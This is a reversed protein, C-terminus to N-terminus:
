QTTADERVVVQTEAAIEVPELLVTRITYTGASAPEAPLTYNGGPRILLPWKHELTLTQGPKITDAHAMFHERGVSWVETGTSDYVIYGEDLSSYTYPLNGVNTVALNIAAVEGKGYSSIQGFKADPVSQGGLTTVDIKINDSQQPPVYAQSFASPVRLWSESAKNTTGTIALATVLGTIALAAVLVIAL